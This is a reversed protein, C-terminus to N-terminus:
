LIKFHSARSEDNRGFPFLTSTLKLTLALHFILNIAFGIHLPSIEAMHLPSIEAMSFAASIEGSCFPLLKIVFKADLM